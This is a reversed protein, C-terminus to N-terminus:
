RHLGGGHYHCSLDAQPRAFGADDEEDDAVDDGVAAHSLNFCLMWVPRM